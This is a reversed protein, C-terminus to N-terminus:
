LKRFFACSPPLFPKAFSVYWSCILDLACRCFFPLITYLWWSKPLFSCFVVIACHTTHFSKGNGWVLVFSGWFYTIITRYWKKPTFIWLSFFSLPQSNVFCTTTCLLKYLDGYYLKVCQEFYCKKNWLIM